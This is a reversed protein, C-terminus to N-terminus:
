NSMTGLLSSYIEMDFQPTINNLFYYTNFLLANLIAVTNLMLDNSCFRLKITNLVLILQKCCVVSSNSRINRSM